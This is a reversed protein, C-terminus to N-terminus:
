TTKTPRLRMGPIVAMVLSLIAAGLMLWLGAKKEPCIASYCGSFIIFCRCAYAVIVACIFFNMRKAWVRNVIFGLAAIVSFFIFVKGPKGYANNQSFFGTFTKDLDPHYTWPLFCSIILIILAAIGIWQSYKMYNDSKPFLNYRNRFILAVFKYGSRKLDSNIRCSLGGLLHLFPTMLIPISKKDVM